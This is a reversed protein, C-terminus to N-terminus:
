VWQHNGAELVLVRGQWIDIRPAEHEPIGALMALM